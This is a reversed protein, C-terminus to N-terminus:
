CFPLHSFLATEKQIAWCLLHDGIESRWAAGSLMGLPVSDAPLCLEWKVCFGTIRVGRQLGEWSFQTWTSSVRTLQSVEGMEVFDFLIHDCSIKQVAVSESRKQSHFNCEQFHCLTYPSFTLGILIIFLCFCAPAWETNHSLIHLIVAILFLKLNCRKIKNIFQHEATIELLWCIKTDDTMLARYVSIVSM